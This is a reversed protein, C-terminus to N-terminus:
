LTIPVLSVSATRLVPNVAFRMLTTLGTLSTGSGSTGNSGGGDPPPPGNSSGGGVRKYATVIASFTFLESANDQFKMTRGGSVESASFQEDTGLQHSYDFLAANAVSTGNAGNDANIVRVTGSGSTITVVKFEVLPVFMSSSQNTMNLDLQFVGGSFSVNSMATRVLNTIEVKARQDVLISRVNSPATVFFGIRGPTLARVRFFHQGDALATFSYSTTNGGVDAVVQWTQNDTSREVEYQDATGSPQWQITVNGDFDLNRAQSDVFDGPIAQLTPPAGGLLKTTTLVYDTPGNAWGSVRLTYTGIKTPVFSVSEPGGPNNSSVVDAGAPDKVYLDLDPVNGEVIAPFDLTANVRLTASTVDLPVDVYTVGALAGANQDGVVVTGPHDETETSTINQPVTPMPKLYFPMRVTGGGGVRDATVYWQMQIPGFVVQNGITKAAMTDRIVNGDVAASVTFTASGNAPVSVSSDSTTVSIGALQLDRNNAVHLNFTGGQGSVDQITVTINETHTVRSNVVPVEGFSHSGLIYPVSIGDGTVGMLAKINAAAAVDILGGGQGLIADAETGDAVPAGAPSRMNTATNILATRIMDALLGPRQPDSWNLHSQKLLAVAGSTIPTAFSTGSASTYRTPSVMSGVPLGVATTASLISVGPASVDPKVQGLGQVPGRSSFSAMGPSFLVDKDIRVQRQSVAGFAASGILSKLYDGNDKSLGLVPIAAARADTADLEGDVNNYILAAIAGKAAAFAAKNSFLGSGQNGLLGTPDEVNISSGRQILAIKGSVSDPIQDPTDALGCYVYNNTIDSNIAASGNMVFAKMGTRGGGVVDVSNPGAGPDYSAGVGIARRAAAPSGLTSEGPGSNGAAAVIIANMLVANDAAQSEADDPGGAGGLSLNIIDAIPKPFGTTTRPSVADEIGAIIASVPCGGIVPLAVGTAFYIASGHGYCVKCNMLRAQPAVGHIPIDDATNPIGDEGPAFGLYGASDAAGHTGHGFDDNGADGDVLPMHYIVKKNSNLAAADSAFGSRPPTPDGGFMDHSWDIGTNLMAIKMGQGEFGDRYVTDFATLEQNGGYVQPARIYTVANDLMHMLIKNQHVRKVEPMAKILAVQGIPVKLTFGNFVLTYRLEVRHSVGTSDGVNNSVLQGTVGRGSLASLFQDQRARLQDRYAQLQDDSITQGQRRARTAYLAGPEDRLEVIVSTLALPNTASTKFVPLFMVGVAILAIAALRFLTFM